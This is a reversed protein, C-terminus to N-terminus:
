QKEIWSIAEKLLEIAQDKSFENSFYGDCEERFIIKENECALSFINEDLVVGHIGYGKETKGSNFYKLEM